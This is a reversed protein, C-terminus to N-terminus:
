KKMDIMLQITNVWLPIAISVVFVTIVGYLTKRVGAIEVKTDLIDDKIEKIRDDVRNFKEELYLAVATDGAKLDGSM